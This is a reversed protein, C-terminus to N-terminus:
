TFFINSSIALGPFWCQALQIPVSKNRIIIHFIAAAAAAAAAASAASPPTLRRCTTQRRSRPLAVDVEIDVALSRAAAAGAHRRVASSAATMLGDDDDCRGEDEEDDQQQQHRHHHHKGHHECSPWPPRPGTATDAAHSPTPRPDDRADCTDSVIYAQM